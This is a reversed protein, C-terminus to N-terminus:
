EPHTVFTPPTKKKKGRKGRKRTPCSPPPPPGQRKLWAETNPCPKRSLALIEYAPTYDKLNDNEDLMHRSLAEFISDGDSDEDSDTDGWFRGKLRDGGAEDSPMRTGGEPAPPSPTPSPLPPPPPRRTYTPTPRDQMRAERVIDTLATELLSDEGPSSRTLTHTRVLGVSPLHYPHFVGHPRFCGYRPIWPTLVPRIGLQQVTSQTRMVVGLWAMFVDCLYQWAQDDGHTETDKKKRKKWKGSRKNEVVHVLDPADILPPHATSSSDLPDPNDDDFLRRPEIFIHPKKTERDMKKASGNASVIDIEDLTPSGREFIFETDRNSNDPSLKVVLHLGTTSGFNAQMRWKTHSTDALHSSKGM